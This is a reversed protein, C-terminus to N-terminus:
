EHRVDRVNRGYGKEVLVKGDRFAERGRLVVRTVRGKVQWGEFPTWGCRSHLDAAHIKYRATEDVEIRTEPQEPLNFIRRPNIVSRQILDDLSLRGEDVATLLLPLM